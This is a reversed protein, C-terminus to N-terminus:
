AEEVVNGLNTTTGEAEVAAGGSEKEELTMGEVGASMAESAEAMEAARVSRPEFHWRVDAPVPESRILLASRTEITAGESRSERGPKPPYEPMDPFNPYRTLEYAQALIEGVRRDAEDYEAFRWHGYACYLHLFGIWSPHGQLFSAPDDQAALEDEMDELAESVIPSIDDLLPEDSQEIYVRDRLENIYKVATNPSVPLGLHKANSSMEDVVRSHPSHTRPRATRAVRTSAAGGVSAPNAEDERTACGVMSEARARVGERQAVSRHTGREAASPGRWRVSPEDRVSVSERYRLRDRLRNGAGQIYEQQSRRISCLGVSGGRDAGLVASKRMLWDQESRGVGSRSDELSHQQLEREPFSSLQGIQDNTQLDGEGRVSVFSRADPTPVSNQRRKAHGGAAANVSNPGTAHQVSQALRWEDQQSSVGDSAAGAVSRDAGLSGVATVQLDCPRAYATDASFVMRCTRPAGIAGVGRIGPLDGM